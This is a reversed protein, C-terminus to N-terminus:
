WYDSVKNQTHTVRVCINTLIHSALSVCHLWLSLVTIAETVFKIELYQIFIHLSQLYFMGTKVPARGDRFRIISNVFATFFANVAKM